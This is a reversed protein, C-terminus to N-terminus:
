KNHCNLISCVKKKTSDSALTRNNLFIPDENLKIAKNFCELARSNQNLEMFSVGIANWTEGTEDPSIKLHQFYDDIAAQHLNLIQELLARNAYGKLSQPNLNLALNMDALALDYKGITAYVAGRNEIALCEKPNLAISQNYNILALDYKNESFYINGRNIYATSSPAVSIARDWLLTSNKWISSQKFSLITLTISVFVLLAIAIPTPKGSHADAWKQFYFGAIMFIGILPIYTYRDAIIASGGIPLFQSVLVLNVIYFVIAFAFLRNKRFSTFFLCALFLSILPSLYYIVPLTNNISPFPYLPSLNIPFFVKVLYMIFGYFGFFFRSFAPFESASIADGQISYAHLTLFGFGISFLMFPIKEIYVRPENLRRYYFDITLLVIPFIIAAPKSLLSLIFLGLVASLRLLSRKKLYYLYTILGALFFFSYLVDKRETVWAVSEVHLPHIGFFLATIFAIWYKKGSLQFVFLFVLILNLLHLLLNVVHYSTADNGSCAYNFALTLMTLPHYNRLVPTTIIENLNSLSQIARNDTVYVSDDWNVFDAKLVPALAIVSLTICVTLMWYIDKKGMVSFKEVPKQCV